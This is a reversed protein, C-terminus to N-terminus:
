IHILSLCLAGIAEEPDKRVDGMSLTEYDLNWRAITEQARHLYQGAISRAVAEQLGNRNMLSQVIEDLDREVVVIRVRSLLGLRQFARLWLDLTLCSRPDKFGWQDETAAYYTILAHMEILNRIGPALSQPFETSWSKVRYGSRELIRDNLRRFRIHEFFGRPNQASPPPYFTRETGMLIGAHHLTGATLSTGSRHMGIVPVILNSKFMGVVRM